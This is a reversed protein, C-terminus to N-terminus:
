KKNTYQELSSKITVTLTHFHYRHFYYGQEGKGKASNNHEESRFAGIKFGTLLFRSFFFM